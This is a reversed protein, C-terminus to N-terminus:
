EGHDVEERGPCASCGGRCDACSEPDGEGDGLDEPTLPHKRKRMVNQCGCHPCDIADYLMPERGSGLMAELGMYYCDRAVYHGEAVLPFPRGCVQCERMGPIRDERM